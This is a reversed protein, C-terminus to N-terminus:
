IEECYLLVVTDKPRFNGSEWNVLLETGKNISLSLNDVYDKFFRDNSGQGNYTKINEYTFSRVSDNNAYTAKKLRINREGVQNGGTIYSISMSKIKIDFPITYGKSVVNSVILDVSTYSNVRSRFGYTLTLQRKVGVESNEEVYTEVQSYTNFPTVGDESVKYKSYDSDCLSLLIGNGEIDTFTLGDVLLNDSITSPDVMQGFGVHVKSVTDLNHFYLEKM